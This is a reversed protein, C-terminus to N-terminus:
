LAEERIGKDQRYDSGPRTSKLLRSSLRTNPPQVFEGETSLNAGHLRRLNPRQM